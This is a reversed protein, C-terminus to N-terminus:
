EGPAPAAFRAARASGRRSRRARSARPRPRRAPPPPRPASRSGRRRRRPAPAATRRPRSRARGRRRTSCRRGVAFRRSSRRGLKSGLQGLAVLGVEATAEGGVARVEVLDRDVAVVARQAAVAGLALVAQRQQRQQEGLALDQEGLAARRRHHQEVVDGGLEVGLAARSSHSRRTAPPPCATIVAVSGALQRGRARPALQPMRSPRTIAAPRRRRRAPRPPMLRPAGAPPERRARRPGCRPAGAVRSAATCPAHRALRRRPRRAPPRAPTSRSPMTVTAQREAVQACSSSRIAGLQELPQLPAGASPGAPRDPPSRNVASAARWSAQGQVGTKVKHTIQLAKRVGGRAKRPGFSIDKHSSPRVGRVTQIRAVRPRDTPAEWRRPCTEM